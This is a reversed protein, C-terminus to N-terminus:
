FKITTHPLVHLTQTIWSPHDAESKVNSFVLAKMFCEPNLGVFQSQAITIFATHSHSLCLVPLSFGMFVTHAQAFWLISKRSGISHLSVLSPFEVSKLVWGQYLYNVLKEFSSNYILIKSPNSINNSTQRVSTNFTYKLEICRSQGPTDESQLFFTLWLKTIKICIEHNFFLPIIKLNLSM